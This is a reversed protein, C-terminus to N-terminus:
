VAIHTHISMSGSPGRQVEVLNKKKLPVTAKILRGEDTTVEFLGILRQEREKSHSATGKQDRKAAQTKM